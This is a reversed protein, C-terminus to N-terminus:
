KKVTKKMVEEYPIAKILEIRGNKFWENEEILRQIVTDATTFIAPAVGFGTIQGGEFRVKVFPKVLYGTNLHLEWELLDRVGYTKQYWIKREEKKDSTPEPLAAGETEKVKDKM